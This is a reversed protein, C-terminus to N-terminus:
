RQGTLPRITMEDKTQMWKIFQKTSYPVVLMKINYTEKLQNALITAEPNYFFSLINGAKTTISHRQINM